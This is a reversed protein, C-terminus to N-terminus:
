LFDFYWVHKDNGPFRSHIALNPRHCAIWISLFEQIGAKAPIVVKQSQM